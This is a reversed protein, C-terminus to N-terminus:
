QDEYSVENLFQFISFQFQINQVSVGSVQFRKPFNEERDSQGDKGTLPGARTFKM